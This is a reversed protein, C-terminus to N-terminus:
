KSQKLWPFITELADADSQAKKAKKVSPALTKKIRIKETIMKDLQEVKAGQEPPLGTRIRKVIARRLSDYFDATDTDMKGRENYARNAFLQKQEDADLMSLDDGAEKVIEKFEKQLSKAKASQGSRRMKSLVTKVEPDSELDKFGVREKASKLIGNVESKLATTEDGIEAYKTPAKKIAEDALEKGAKASKQSANDAVQREMKAADEMIGAEAAQSAAFDKLGTKTPSNTLSRLGSGLMKFREEGLILKLLPIGLGSIAKEAVIPAVVSAAQGLGGYVPEPEELKDLFRNPVTDLGLGLLDLVTPPGSFPRGIAGATAALLKDGMNKMPNFLDSLVDATNYRSSADIPEREPAPSASSPTSPAETQGGYKAKIKDLASGM